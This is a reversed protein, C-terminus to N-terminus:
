SLNFYMPFLQGSDLTLFLTYCGVSLTAWNYVYQNTTADYRLSTAGTATAELPDTPDSSFARCSTSQYTISRVSSLTTVFSGSSTTLQFKVAYTKGAKGTNVTPSSNVPPMFGSFAYVVM